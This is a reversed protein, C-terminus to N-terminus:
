HWEDIHVSKCWDVYRRPTSNTCGVAFVHHQSVQLHVLTRLHRQMRMGM